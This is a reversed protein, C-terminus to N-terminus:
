LEFRHRLRQTRSVPVGKETAPNFRWRRVAREVSQEFIGQPQARLIRVESVTGQPTVTYEFEVWGEIGRQRARAPYEPDIRVLPVLDGGGDGSGLTTAEAIEAEADVLPGLSAVADGPNLSQSVSMQPPPPPQEPKQRKPPEREPPPPASDRRLRVFEVTTPPKADRLEAEVGVLAQMIWFLAFTTVLGLAIAVGFRLAM